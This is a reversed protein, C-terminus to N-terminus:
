YNNSLLLFKSLFKSDVKGVLSLSLIDLIAGNVVVLLFTSYINGYELLSFLLFLLSASDLLEGNKLFFSSPAVANFDELLLSLEEGLFDGPLDFTLNSEM